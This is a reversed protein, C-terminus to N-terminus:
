ILAIMQQRAMSVDWVFIRRAGSSLAYMPDTFVVRQDGSKEISHPTM